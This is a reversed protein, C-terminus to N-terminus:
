FSVLCCDCWIVDPWEDPDVGTQPLPPLKWFESGDWCDDDNKQSLWCEEDDDLLGVADLLLLGEYTDALISSIYEFSSEKM